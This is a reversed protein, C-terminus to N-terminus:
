SMADTEYEISMWPVPSRVICRWRVRIKGKALPPDSLEFTQFIRRLGKRLGKIAMVAFLGFDLDWSRRLIYRFVHGFRYIVTAPISVEIREASFAGSAGRLLKTFIRSCHLLTPFHSNRFNPQYHHSIRLAERLSDGETREKADEWREEDESREDISLEQRKAIAELFGEFATFWKWRQNADEPLHDYQKSWEQESDRRLIAHKIASFGHDDERNVDFSAWFGRALIEITEIDGWMAASYLTDRQMSIMAHKGPFTYSVLFRLADHSNKRVAVDIVTLGLVSVHGVNAGAKILYSINKPKNNEAAEFLPTRGELDESELDAGFMLLIIMGSNGDKQGAAISLATHGSGSKANIHAHVNLLLIASVISTPSQLSRHLPNFGSKDVHKPDAGCYLLKSITEYDGAKAAWCLMTRGNLDVQDIESRPTVDLVEELTEDSKGFYARHLRPLGLEELALEEPFLACWSALTEEDWAHKHTM